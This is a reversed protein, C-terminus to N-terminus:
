KINIHDTTWEGEIDYWSGYTRLSYHNSPVMNTHSILIGYILCRLNYQRLIM